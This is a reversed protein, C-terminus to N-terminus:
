PKVRAKAARVATLGRRRARNAPETAVMPVGRNSPMVRSLAKVPARPQAVRQTAGRDGAVAQGRGRPLPVVGGKVSSPVPHGAAKGPVVRDPLHAPPAAVWAVHLYGTVPVPGTPRAPGERARRHPTLGAAVPLRGSCCEGPHPKRVRGGRLAEPLRGGAGLAKPPAHWAVPGGSPLLRGEEGAQCVARPAAGSSRRSTGRAAGATADVGHGSRPRRGAARGACAGRRSPRRSRAACGPWGAGRHRASPEGIARRRGM